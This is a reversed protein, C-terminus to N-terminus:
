SLMDCFMEYYFMFMWMCGRSVDECVCCLM